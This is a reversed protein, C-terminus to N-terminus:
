LRPDEIQNCGENRLLCLDIYHDIFQTIDEKSPDQTDIGRTNLAASSPDYGSITPSGASTKAKYELAIVIHKSILIAVIFKQNIKHHKLKM